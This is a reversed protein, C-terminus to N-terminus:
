VLFETPLRNLLSCWGKSLGFRGPSCWGFCFLCRWPDLTNTNSLVLLRISLTCLPQCGGGHDRHGRSNDEPGSAAMLWTHDTMWMTWGGM